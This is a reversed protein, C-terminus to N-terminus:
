ANNSEEVVEAEVEPSETKSEQKAKKSARKKRPAKTKEQKQKDVAEDIALQAEDAAGTEELAKLVEGFEEETQAQGVYWYSVYYVLKKIVEEQFETGDEEIADYAALKQNYNEGEFIPKVTSNDEPNGYYSMNLVWWLITKNRARNEATQDFLSAQAMEFEQIERKIVGNESLLNAMEEKEADTRDKEKKASAREIANQNEFLKVYLDAYEEKDPNSMVGGDNSFRKALLARTLLGAKIGESLQVGYYLEAEDFMSRTPKKLFISRDVCEVSDKTVTVENGDKDKSKEEVKKTVTESVTFKYLKKM